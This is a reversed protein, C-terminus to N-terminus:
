PQEERLYNKKLIALQQTFLGIAQANMHAANYFNSQQKSIPDSAFNLFVAGCRDSLSQARAFIAELNRIRRNMSQFHSPYVFLLRVGDTKLQRAFDLYECILTIDFFEEVPSPQNPKGLRSRRGLNQIQAIMLFLFRWYWWGYFL